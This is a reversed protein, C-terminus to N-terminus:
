KCKLPGTKSDDDLTEFNAQNGTYREEQDKQNSGFGRGKTRRSRANEKTSDEEVDELLEDDKM